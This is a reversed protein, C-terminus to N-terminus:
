DKFHSISLGKCASPAPDSYSVGCKGAALMKEEHCVKEFLHVDEEALCV